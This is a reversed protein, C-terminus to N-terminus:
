VIFTELQYQPTRAYRAHRVELQKVEMQKVKFLYGLPDDVHTRSSTPDCAFLPHQLERRKVAWLRAFCGLVCLCMVSLILILQELKRISGSLWGENSLEKVLWAGRGASVPTNELVPLGAGTGSGFSQLGSAQLSAIPALPAAPPGAGYGHGFHDLPKAVDAQISSITISAQCATHLGATLLLLLKSAQSASSAM